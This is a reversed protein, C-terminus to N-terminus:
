IWGSGPAKLPAMQNLAENVEEGTFERLLFNNMTPTVKRKVASLVKQMNTPAEATFLRQFYGVFAVAIDDQSTWVQGAEDSIQTIINAKRRQNASAHFFKSNQDGFKLWEEKARQRWRLDEEEQLIALDSHVKKYEEMDVCDTKDQISLLKNSLIKMTTESQQGQARQWRLLGGTSKNIIRRLVLM